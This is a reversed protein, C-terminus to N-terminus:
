NRADWSCYLRLTIQTYISCCYLHLLSHIRVRINDPIHEHGRSSSLTMFCGYNANAKVLKGNFLVNGIYRPKFPVYDMVLDGFDRKPQRHRTVHETRTCLM